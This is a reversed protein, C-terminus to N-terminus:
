PKRILSGKNNALRAAVRVAGVAANAGVFQGAFRNWVHDHWCIEIVVSFPGPQDPRALATVHNVAQRFCFAATGEDLSDAAFGEVLTSGRRATVHLSSESHEALSREGARPLTPRHLPWESIDTTLRVLASASASEPLVIRPGAGSEPSRPTEGVTVNARYRSTSQPM